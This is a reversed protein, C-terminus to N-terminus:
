RPLSIIDYNALCLVLSTLCYGLISLHGVNLRVWCYQYYRVKACCYFPKWSQTFPECLSSVDDLYAYDVIQPSFALWMLWLAVFMWRMKVHAELWTTFSGSIAHLATRFLCDFPVAFLTFVNGSTHYIKICILSDWYCQCLQFWCWFLQFLTGTTFYDVTDAWGGFNLSAVGLGVVTFYDVLVCVSHGAQFDRRM